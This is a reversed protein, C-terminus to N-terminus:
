QSNGRERFVLTDGFLMEDGSHQNNADASEKPESGHKEAGEDKVVFYDFGPNFVTEVPANNLTYKLLDFLYLIGYNVFAIVDEKTYVAGDTKKVLQGEFELWSQAPHYFNDRNNVTITINGPNNLQTGSEPYFQYLQYNVISEDEELGQKIDLISNM